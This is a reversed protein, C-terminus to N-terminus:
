ARATLTLQSPERQDGAYYTANVKDLGHAEAQAIFAKLDALTMGHGPLVATVTTKIQVGM